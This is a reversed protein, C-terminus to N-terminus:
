TNVAESKVDVLKNFIIDPGAEVSKSIKSILDSKDPQVRSAPLQDLM